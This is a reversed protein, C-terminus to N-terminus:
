PAATRAQTAFNLARFSDYSYESQMELRGKQFIRVVVHSVFTMTEKPDRTFDVGIWYRTNKDDVQEEIRWINGSDPDVWAQGSPPLPKDDVPLLGEGSMQKYAVQVSAVSVDSTDPPFSFKMKDRNREAFRTVLLGLGSFREPFLRHPFIDQFANTLEQRSAGAAVKSWKANRKEVTQIEKGDVSDVDRLELLEGRVEGGLRLVAFDSVIKKQSDINGKKDFKTQLLTEKAAYNQYGAVFRDCADSLRELLEKPVSQDRQAATAASFKLGGNRTHGAHAYGCLSILACGLLAARIWM